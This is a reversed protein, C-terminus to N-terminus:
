YKALLVCRELVLNKAIGVGSVRILNAVSHPGTEATLPLPHGERDLFEPQSFWTSMVVGLDEYARMLRKYLGLKERGRNRTRHKRAYHMIATNSINNRRLFDHTAALLAIAGQQNVLQQKLKYNSAM